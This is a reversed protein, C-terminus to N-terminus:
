TTHLIIQFIIHLFPTKNDALVWRRTDVSLMLAPLGPAEIQRGQLECVGQPEPKNSTGGSRYRILFNNSTSSSTKQIFMCMYVNTQAM